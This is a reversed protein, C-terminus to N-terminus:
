KLTGEKNRGEDEREETLIRNKNKTCYFLHYSTLYSYSLLFKTIKSFITDKTSKNQAIHLQLVCLHAVNEEM